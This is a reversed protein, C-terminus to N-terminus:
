GAMCTCHGSLIEGTRRCLVWAKYPEAKKGVRQSPLVNAKMFVVENTEENKANEKDVASAHKGDQDVTCLSTQIAQVFGNKFYNYSELSKMSKLEQNTYQGVKHVCYM